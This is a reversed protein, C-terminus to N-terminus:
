YAAVHRASLTAGSSSLVPPATDSELPELVRRRDIHIVADFQDAVHASFYHSQRETQPQYVVGITRELLNGRLAEAAAPSDRFTLVFQDIGAAHFAAEVSDALAPRVNMVIGSAGWSTAATVTGTYTTFGIPFADDGHMERMLQGVNLEGAAARDTARADGLYSNHAWVVLKPRATRSTLHRQLAELTDAMHRDRLNWDSVGAMYMTRYYEEANRVVRANQRANFLDDQATIDEAAGAPITRSQKEDFQEVAAAECSQAIRLWVAYAYLEPYDNFGQFCSYRARARSAADADVADLYRILEQQSRFRSYLDMGYFGAQEAAGVTQNRDRLWGAFDRVVTNRWMWLPFRSFPSLAQDPTVEPSVSRVFGNVVYADPWDAEAVVAVFGKEEIFRRTILARTEYFEHTGHSAEGIM